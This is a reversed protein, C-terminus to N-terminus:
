DYKSRTAIVSERLQMRNFWRELRSFSGLTAKGKPTCALYLIIPFAHLDALSVANGVLFDNEGLWFDLQELVAKIKSLAAPIAGDGSHEGGDPIGILQALLYLVMPHYAYSDLVSIIQNMRARPIIEMPQLKPSAVLEDVYRTIAGTEYLCFEEDILCPIRGFPHRAFHDAPPGEFAHVDVKKLAYSIRKEELALRVIRTYASEELGLVTLNTMNVDLDSLKFICKPTSEIRM